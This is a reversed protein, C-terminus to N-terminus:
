RVRVCFCFITARAAREGCDPGLLRAPRRSFGM